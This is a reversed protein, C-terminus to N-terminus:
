VSLQRIANPDDNSLSGGLVLFKLVRAQWSKEEERAEELAAQAKNLKASSSSSASAASSALASLAEKRQEEESWEFALSTAWM